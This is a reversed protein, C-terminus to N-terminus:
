GAPPRRGPKYILVPLLLVGALVLVWLRGRWIAYDALLRSWAHGMVFRGFLFEWAVTLATWWAGTALAHRRSRFPWARAALWIIGAFLSVGLGCSVQHARLEGLWSAYTWERLAGNAFAAAFLALWILLARPFTM